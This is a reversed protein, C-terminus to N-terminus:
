GSLGPAAGGHGVGSGGDRQDCPFRGAVLQACRQDFLQLFPKRPGAKDTDGAAAHLRGADLGPPVAAFERHHAEDLHQRVKRAQQTQSPGQVATQQIHPGVYKDADVRRVHGFNQDIKLIAAQGPNVQVKELPGPPPLDPAPSSADPYVRTPGDVFTPGDPHPM